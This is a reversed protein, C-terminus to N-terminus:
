PSFLFSIIVFDVPCSSESRANRLPDRRAGTPRSISSHCESDPHMAYHAIACVGGGYPRKRGNWYFDQKSQRHHLTIRLSTVQHAGHARRPRSTWEEVAPWSSLLLYAFTQSPFPGWTSEGLIRRCCLRSSDFSLLFFILRRNVFHFNEEEKVSLHLDYTGLAPFLIEQGACICLVSLTKQIIVAQIIPPGHPTNNFWSM